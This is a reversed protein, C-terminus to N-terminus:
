RNRFLRWLLNFYLIILLFPLIPDTPFITFGIVIGVTFYVIGYYTIKYTIYNSIKLKKKLTESSILNIEDEYQFLGPFVISFWILFNLFWSDTFIIIVLLFAMGFYLPYNIKEYPTILYVVYIFGYSIFTLIIMIIAEISFSNFLISIIRTISSSPYNSIQATTNIELFERLMNPYVLVYVFNILHSFILGLLLKFLIKHDLKIKKGDRQIFLKALLPVILIAFPKISIGLGLIIGILLYEGKISYKKLRANEILFIVILMLFIFIQSIQGMMIMPVQVPAMLVLFLLDKKLKTNYRINYFKTSIVYILYFSAIQFIGLLFTHIIFGVEFPILTYPLFLLSFLPFYRFPMKYDPLTYLEEPNALITQVSQYFIKFDNSIITNEIPTIFPIIIFSLITIVIYILIVYVSIKLAKTRKIHITCEKLDQIFLNNRNIKFM